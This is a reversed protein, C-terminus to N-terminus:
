IDPLPKRRLSNPNLKKLFAKPDSEAEPYYGPALVYICSGKTYVAPLRKQKATKIWLALAEASLEPKVVNPLEKNHFLEESKSPDANMLDVRIRQAYYPGLSFWRAGLLEDDYLVGKYGHSDVPMKKWFEERQRVIETENPQMRRLILGGILVFLILGVAVAPGWGSDTLISNWDVEDRQIPPGIALATTAPAALAFSLALGVRRIAKRGPYQTLM